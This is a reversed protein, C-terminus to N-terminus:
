VGRVIIPEESKDNKDALQTEIVISKLAEIPAKKEKKIDKEGRNRYIAYVVMQLLGLGFGLVNPLAICIDKLFLGYGFWMTASLTLTFSLNFPMFEVSKTRVVQAVISLPAAFVSVSLSVCIWGLVQVRLLSDHVVYNTVLLILAFSGVNMASLLKFTLNRADRPAYIIYLIIYITEVVCGFSNITILLFADKKLYAYYLWLMSSFLAVLYPLSQFGETSKKKYVRYFTSILLPTNSNSITHNLRM